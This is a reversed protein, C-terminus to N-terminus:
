NNELDVENWESQFYELDYKARNARGVKERFEEIDAMLELFTHRSQHMGSDLGPIISECLLEVAEDRAVLYPRLIDLFARLDARRSVVFTYREYETDTNTKTRVAIDYEEFFNELLEATDEAEIRIRCRLQIKYGIKRNSDKGISVVLGSHNDVLSAIYPVRWDDSNSM